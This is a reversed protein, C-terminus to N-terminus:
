TADPIIEGFHYSLTLRTQELIRIALDVRNRADYEDVAIGIICALKSSLQSVFNDISSNIIDEIYVSHIPVDLKKIRKNM